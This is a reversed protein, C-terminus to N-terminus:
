FKPEIFYEVKPENLLYLDLQGKGRFCHIKSQYKKFVIEQEIEIPLFDDTFYKFYNKNTTKPM